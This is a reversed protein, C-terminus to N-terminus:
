NHPFLEPKASFVRVITPGNRIQDVLRGSLKPTIVTIELEKPGNWKLEPPLTKDPWTSNELARVTFWGGSRPEIRVSSFTSEGMGCEKKLLTARYSREPSWLEAESSNYCNAEPGLALWRSVYAVAGVLTFLVVIKAVTRPRLVLSV